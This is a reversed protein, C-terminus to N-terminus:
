EPILRVDDVFLFRNGLEAVSLRIRATAASAPATFSADDETWDRLPASDPRAEHSDVRVQAGSTDFWLVQLRLGNQQPTVDWWMESRFWASLRYTAEPTVPFAASQVEFRGVCGDKAIVLGSGPVCPPIALASADPVSRNPLAPSPNRGTGYRFFVGDYLQHPALVTWGDPLGSPVECEARGANTFCQGKNRAEFGGNFTPEPALSAFGEAQQRMVPAEDQVPAPDVCAAILLSLLVARNMSVGQVLVKM